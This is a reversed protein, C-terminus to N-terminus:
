LYLSVLTAEVGNVSVSLYRFPETSVSLVWHLFGVKQYRPQVSLEWAQQSFTLDEGLCNM